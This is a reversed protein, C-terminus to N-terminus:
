YGEWRLLVLVLNLLYISNHIEEGLMNEVNYGLCNKILDNLEISRDPNFNHTSLSYKEPALKQEGRIEVSMYQQVQSGTGEWEGGM